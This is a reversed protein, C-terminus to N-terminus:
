AAGQRSTRGLEVRIKDLCDYLAGSFRREAVAEDLAEPSAAALRLPGPGSRTELPGCQMRRALLLLLEQAHASLCGVSDLYLTGCELEASTGPREGDPVLWYQLARCLRAEERACDVALLARRGLPSARHFADAVALRQEDDGGLV